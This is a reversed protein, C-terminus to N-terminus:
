NRALQFYESMIKRLIEEDKIIHSDFNTLSQQERRERSESGGRKIFRDHTKGGSLSCGEELLPQTAGWVRSAKAQGFDKTLEFFIHFAERNQTDDKRLRKISNNM